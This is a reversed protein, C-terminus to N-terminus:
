DRKRGYSIREFREESEARLQRVWAAAGGRLEPHDEDKWAGASNALAIRQQRRQIEDRTSENEAVFRLKGCVLTFSFDGRRRVARFREIFREM